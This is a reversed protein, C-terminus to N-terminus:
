CVKEDGENNSTALEKNANKPNQKQERVMVM